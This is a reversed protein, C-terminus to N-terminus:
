AHSTRELSLAPRGAMLIGAGHIILAMQQCVRRRDLLPSANACSAWDILMADLNPVGISPFARAFAEGRSARELNLAPRGALIDDDSLDVPWGYAAFVAGHEFRHTHAHALNYCRCRDFTSHLSAGRCM